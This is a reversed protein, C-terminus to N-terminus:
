TKVSRTDARAGFPSLPPSSATSGTQNAEANASPRHAATTQSRSPPTPAPSSGPLSDRRRYGSPDSVASNGRLESSVPQSQAQTRKALEAKLLQFEETLEHLRD